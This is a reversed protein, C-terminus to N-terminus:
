PPHGDRQKLVEVAGADRFAEGAVEAADALLGCGCPLGCRVPETAGAVVGALCPERIVALLAFSLRPIGLSFASLLLFRQQALSQTYKAGLNLDYTGV